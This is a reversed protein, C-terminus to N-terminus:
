QLREHMETVGEGVAPRVGDAGVGASQRGGSLEVREALGVLGFGSAPPDMAVAPRPPLGNRVCLNVGEEPDGTVRVRVVATPAHKRANTLGEQVCRYLTRGLVDPIGELDVDRTYRLKMGYGRNEEVLGDIDVARAQPSEPEADGPGKRLVGLLERLETLSLTRPDTM